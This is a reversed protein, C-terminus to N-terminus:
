EEGDRHLLAFPERANMATRAFYFANGPELGGETLFRRVRGLQVDDAITGPTRIVRRVEMTTPNILVTCGARYRFDGDDPPPVSSEDIQKQRAEDFYGRRRQTIEVVLDTSPAGRPSRRLATRVSHVEVAVRGTSASRFVTAPPNDEDLVLGIARALKRGKGKVLWSWLVAANADVGKWTEYRDSELGWPRLRDAVPRTQRRTSSQEPDDTPQDETFLSRMEERDLFVKAEEEAEDGTPWLLGEVSMSRM